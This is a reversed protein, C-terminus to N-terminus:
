RKNGGERWTGCHFSRDLDEDAPQVLNKVHWLIKFGLFESHEAGGKDKSPEGM